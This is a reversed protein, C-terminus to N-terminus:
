PRHLFARGGVAGPMDAVVLRLESSVLSGSLAGTASGVSATGSILDGTRTAHLKAIFNCAGGVAVLTGNVSLGGEVLTATASGPDTQFCDLRNAVFTGTWEGGLPVPTPTPTPVPTSTQTPTANSLNPGAIDNSQRCASFALLM